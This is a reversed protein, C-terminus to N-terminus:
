LRELFVATNVILLLLPIGGQCDRGTNAPFFWDPLKTYCFPICNAVSICVINLLKKLVNYVVRNEPVWFQYISVWLFTKKKWKIWFGLKVYKQFVFSNLCQPWPYIPPSKYTSFSVPWVLCWWLQFTDMCLPFLQGM